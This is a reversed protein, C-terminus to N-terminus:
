INNALTITNKIMELIMCINSTGRLKENRNKLKDIDEKAIKWHRAETMKDKKNKSYKVKPNLVGEIDPNFFILHYKKHKTYEEIEKFLKLDNTNSSVEDTDVVFIVKSEESFKSKNEKIKNEIKNYNTKGNMFLPKIKIGNKLEPYLKTIIRNIYEYDTKGELVFIIQSYLM